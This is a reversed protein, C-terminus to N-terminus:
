GSLDQERITYLGRVYDEFNSSIFCERVKSLIRAVPCVEQLMVNKYKEKEKKGNRIKLGELSLVLNSGGNTVTYSLTIINWKMVHLAICKSIISSM